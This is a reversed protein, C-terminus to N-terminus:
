VNKMIRSQTSKRHGFAICVGGFQIIFFVVSQLFLLMKNAGAKISIPARSFWWRWNSSCDFRMLLKVIQRIMFNLLSWPRVRGIRGLSNPEFLAIYDVLLRATIAGRACVCM